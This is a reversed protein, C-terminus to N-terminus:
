KLTYESKLMLKTKTFLNTTRYSVVRVRSQTYRMIKLKAHRWEHVSTMNMAEQVMVFVRRRLHRRGDDLRVVRDQRRVRRQLVGVTVEHDVVLGDKINTDLFKSTSRGVYLLM